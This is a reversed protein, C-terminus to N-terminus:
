QQEKPALATVTQTCISTCVTADSQRISLGCDRTHGHRLNAELAARLQEIEKQSADYSNVATVILECWEHRKKATGNELIQAVPYDPGLLLGLTHGSHSLLRRDKVQTTAERNDTNM